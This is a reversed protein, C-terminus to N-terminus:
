SCSILVSGVRLRKRQVVKGPNVKAATKEAIKLLDAVGSVTLIDDNTM